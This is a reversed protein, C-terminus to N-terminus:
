TTMATVSDLLLCYHDAADMLEDDRNGDYTGGGGHFRRSHKLSPVAPVAREL